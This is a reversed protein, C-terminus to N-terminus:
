LNTANYEDSRIQFSSYNIIEYIIDSSDLSFIKSM